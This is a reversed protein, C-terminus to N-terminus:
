LLEFIPCLRDLVDITRTNWAESMKRCRGVWWWIREEFKNLHIRVAEAFAAVKVTLDCVVSGRSIM